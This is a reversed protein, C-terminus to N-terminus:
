IGEGLRHIRTKKKKEVFQRLALLGDTTGRGKAFGQQEGNARM